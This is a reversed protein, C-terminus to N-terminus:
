NVRGRRKSYMDYLLRERCGVLFSDNGQDDDHLVSVMVHPTLTSDYMFYLTRIGVIANHTPPARCKAKFLRKRPAKMSPLDYAKTRCNRDNILGIPGM